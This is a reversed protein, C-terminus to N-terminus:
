EDMMPEDSVPQGAKPASCRCVCRDGAHANQDTCRGAFCSEAEPKRSSPAGREERSLEQRRDISRDVASALRDISPTAHHAAM